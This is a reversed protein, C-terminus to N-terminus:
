NAKQIARLIESLEADLAADADADFAPVPYRHTEMRRVSREAFARRKELMWRDSIEQLARDDAGRRWLKYHSQCMGRACSPKNCGEAACPGPM